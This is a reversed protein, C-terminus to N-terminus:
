LVIAFMLKLVLLLNFMIPIGMKVTSVGNMDVNFPYIMAIFPIGLIVKESMDKVLISPIHFCVNHQCVHANNLEFNIKLKNGNASSLKEMSKEFYKSPILGEQICNLDAGTDILAITDFAYDKSVVIHVKTYWRPPYVKNILSIVKFDNPFINNSQEEDSHESKADENDSNREPFCGNLKSLLIEQELAKNNTKLVNVEKKLEVIDNKINCIESRLDSITIEKTKSKSFRELTDELSIRSMSHTKEKRYMLKKLKKLYKEKLEPDELKSIITLLMDEHEETKTLVFIKKNCCSDFCGIKV